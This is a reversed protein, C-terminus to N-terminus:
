QRHSWRSTMVCCSSLCAHEPMTSTTYAISVQTLDSDREVLDDAVLVVLSRSENCAIM